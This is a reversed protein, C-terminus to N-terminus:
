IYDNLNTNPFSIGLHSKGKKLFVVQKKLQYIDSEIRQIQVSIDFDIRGEDNVKESELIKVLRNKSKIKSLVHKLKSAGKM